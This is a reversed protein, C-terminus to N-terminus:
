TLQLLLLQVPLVGTAMNPLFTEGAIPLLLLGVQLLGM